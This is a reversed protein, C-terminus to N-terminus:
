PTASHSPSCDAYAAAAKVIARCAAAYPDDLTDEVGHIATNRIVASRWPRPDGPDSVLLEMNLRAALALAHSGDSLPRWLGNHWGSVLLAGPEEGDSRKIVALGGGKAAKELLERDSM